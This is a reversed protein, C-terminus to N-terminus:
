HQSLRMLSVLDKKIFVESGKQAGGFEDTHVEEGEITLVRQQRNSEEVIYGEEDVSKNLFQLIDNKVTNDFTIKLDRNFEM